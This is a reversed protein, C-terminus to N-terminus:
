KKKDTDDTPCSMTPCKIPHKRTLVFLPILIASVPTFIKDECPKNFGECNTDDGDVYSNFSDIVGLLKEPDIIEQIQPSSLIQLSLYKSSFIATEILL